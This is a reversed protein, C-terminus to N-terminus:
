FQSPLKYKVNRINGTINHLDMKTSHTNNARHSNSTLHRGLLSWVDSPLSRRRFLVSQKPMQMAVNGDKDPSSPWVRLSYMCPLQVSIALLLYSFGLLLYSFRCFDWVIVVSWKIQKNPTSTFYECVFKGFSFFLSM